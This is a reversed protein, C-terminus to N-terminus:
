ARALAFMTLSWETTRFAGSVSQALMSRLPLRPPRPPAMRQDPRQRVVHAGDYSARVHDSRVSPPAPPRTTSGAEALYDGHQVMKYLRPVPGPWHPLRPSHLRGRRAGVYVCMGM